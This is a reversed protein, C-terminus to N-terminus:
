TQIIEIDRSLCYFTFYCWPSFSNYYRMKAKRTVHLRNGADGSFVVTEKYFVTGMCQSRLVIPFTHPCESVHGEATKINVLRQRGSVSTHENDIIIVQHVFGFFNQLTILFYGQIFLVFYNASKEKLMKHCTLPNIRFLTKQRDIKALVRYSFIM